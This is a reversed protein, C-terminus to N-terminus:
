ADALPGLADRLPGLWKAYPRWTGVGERNLPRRVQESSATAVPATSLHFDLCDPEFALGLFDLMRRTQGELDDLVNAYDIQLIAGPALAALGDTLRGYDVYFSGLDCQDSAAPHGRSFLTRYNSWCCDMAERRLDIVRAEPRARLIFSLHQWNMHLKDILVPRGLRRHETAREVYTRGIASLQPRSLGAIAAEISVGPHDRGLREVLWPMIALEGAAEVRSHRGLVREILTSGSRPMGVIFLPTFGSGQPRRRPPIATAKAQALAEDVRGTLAARDYPQAVRRLANGKAYHDFAAEHEAKSQRVAGIAFHLNGAHEPEHGRAALAEEMCALDGQTIAAADLNVLSWWAQGHLPDLGLARRYALASEGKHGVFRLADGYVIWLGVDRDDTRLMQEYTAAADDHRGLDTLLRARLALSTRLEVEEDILPQLVALAETDKHQAHLAGVLLSRAPEFGPAREVVLRLLPEAKDPLGLRAASEASLTLAALDDPQARLHEAALQSAKGYEGADLAAATAVLTPARQSHRLAALEAAMAESQEGMARHAAAALRFAAPLDPQRRLIAHAQQLAVRPDQKLLLRGNGLAEDMSGPRVTPEAKSM